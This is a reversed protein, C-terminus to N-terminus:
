KTKSNEREQDTDQGQGVALRPKTKELRRLACLIENELSHLEKVSSNDFELQKPKCIGERHDNFSGLDSELGVSRETKIKETQDSPSLPTFTQPSVTPSPSPHFPASTSFLDLSGKLNDKSNGTNASLAMDKSNEPPKSQTQELVFPDHPPIAATTASVNPHTKEEQVTNNDLVSDTLNTIMLQLEEARDTLTKISRRNEQITKDLKKHLVVLFMSLLAIQLVLMFTILLDYLSHVLVFQPNLFKNAM